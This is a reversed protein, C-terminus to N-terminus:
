VPASFTKGDDTSRMYFARMYEVCFLFHVIGKKRDSIAVPNNYTIAEAPRDLSATVPNQAVPVSVKGIAQQPSWTAGGDESRRSVIDIEGWDAGSTKRAEAYALLAGKPTVIIGPIRYVTYGLTRSVFLDTRAPEAASAALALVFLLAIKAVRNM